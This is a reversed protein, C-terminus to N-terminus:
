HILNQYHSRIQEALTLQNSPIPIILKQYSDYPTGPIGYNFTLYNQKGYIIEINELAYCSKYLSYLAGDHYIYQETIITFTEKELKSNYYMSLCVSVLSCILVSITILTASILYRNPISSFIFGFAIILGLLGLLIIISLDIHYNENARDKVLTCELPTYSWKALIPLQGQKINKIITHNKYHIIFSYWATIILFCGLILTLVFAVSTPAFHCAFYVTVIVGVIFYLVSLLCKFFEKNM